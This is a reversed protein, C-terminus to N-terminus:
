ITLSSKRNSYYQRNIRTHLNYKHSISIIQIYNSKQTVPDRQEGRELSQQRGPSSSQALCRPSLSLPLCPVNLCETKNPAAPPIKDLIFHLLLAVLLFYLQQNMMVSLSPSTLAPGPSVVVYFDGALWLWWFCIPALVANTWFRAVEGWLRAVLWSSVAVFAAAVKIKQGRCVTLSLFTSVYQAFFSNM